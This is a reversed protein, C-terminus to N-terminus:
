RLLKVTVAIMGKPEPVLETILINVFVTPVMGTIDLRDVVKLLVTVLAVTVPTATGKLAAEHTTTCNFLLEVSGIPLKDHDVSHHCWHDVCSSCCAMRPLSNM